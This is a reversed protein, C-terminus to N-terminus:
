GGAIDPKLWRWDEEDRLTFTGRDGTLRVIYYGDDPEVSVSVVTEHSVLTALAQAQDLTMGEDAM